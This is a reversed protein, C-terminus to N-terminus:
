ANNETKRQSQTVLDLFVSVIVINLQACDCVLCLGLQSLEVFESVTRLRLVRYMKPVFLKITKQM